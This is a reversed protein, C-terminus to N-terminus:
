RKRLVCLDYFAFGEEGVITQQHHVQYIFGRAGLANKGDIAVRLGPAGFLGEDNKWARDDGKMWGPARQQPWAQKRM